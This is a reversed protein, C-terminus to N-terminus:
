FDSEWDDGFENKIEELAQKDGSEAADHLELYYNEYRRELDEDSEDDSYYRKHFNQQKGHNEPAEDGSVAKSFFIFTLFIPILFILFLM